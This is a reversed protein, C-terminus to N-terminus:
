DDCSGRPSVLLTLLTADKKSRKYPVAEGERPSSPEVGAENKLVIQLLEAAEEKDLPLGCTGDPQLVAYQQQLLM